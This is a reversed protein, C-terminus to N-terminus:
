VCDSPKPTFSSPQLLALPMGKERYTKIVTEQGQIINQEARALNNIDVVASKLLIPITDRYSKYVEDWPKSELTISDLGDIAKMRKLDNPRLKEFEGLFRTYREFQAVMSPDPTKGAKEDAAITRKSKNIHSKYRRMFPGDRFDAWPTYDEDDFTVGSLASKIILANIVQMNWNEYSKSFGILAFYLEENSLQWSDKFGTLSENMETNHKEMGIILEALLEVKTKPSVSAEADAEAEAAQDEKKDGASEVEANAAARLQEIQQDLGPYLLNLDSLVTTESTTDLLSRIADPREIVPKIPRNNLMAENLASIRSAHITQADAIRAIANKAITTSQRAAMARTEARQAEQDALKTKNEADQADKLAKSASSLSTNVQISSYLSALYMTAILAIIISFGIALRLRITYRFKM